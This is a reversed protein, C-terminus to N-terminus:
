PIALDTFPSETDAEQTAVVTFATKPPLPKGDFYVQGFAIEGPQVLM